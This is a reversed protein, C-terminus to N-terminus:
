GTKCSAKFNVSQVFLFSTMGPKEAMGRPNDFQRWRPLAAGRVLGPFPTKM